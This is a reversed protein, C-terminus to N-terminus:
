AQNRAARLVSLLAKRASEREVVNILLGLAYYRVINRPRHRPQVTTTGVSAPSNGNMSVPTAPLTTRRRRQIIVATVVLAAPVLLAATRPQRASGLGRSVSDPIKNLYTLRQQLKM